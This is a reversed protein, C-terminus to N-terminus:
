WPRTGTMAEVRKAVVEDIAKAFGEVYAKYRTLDRKTAKADRDGHAVANRANQLGDIATRVSKNSAGRWNPKSSIKEVGLLVFLKDINNPRPTTFDRRISAASFGVNISSLAEQLVDELYAEFHANLLLVGARRAAVIGATPGKSGGTKLQVLKELDDLENLGVSLQILAKSMGNDLVFRVPPLMKLPCPGSIPAHAAAVSPLIAGARQTRELVM